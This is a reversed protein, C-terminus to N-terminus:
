LMDKLKAQKKVGKYHLEKLILFDKNVDWKEKELKLNVEERDKIELVYKSRIDEIKNRFHRESFNPNYKKIEKYLEAAVVPSNKRLYNIIRM